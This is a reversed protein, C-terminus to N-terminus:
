MLQMLPMTLARILQQYVATPHANIQMAGKPVRTAEDKAVVVAMESSCSMCACPDSASWNTWLSTRTLIVLTSTTLMHKASTAEDEDAATAGEGVAVDVVSVVIDAEKAPGAVAAASIM